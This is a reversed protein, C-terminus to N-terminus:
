RGLSYGNLSCLEMAKINKILRPQVCKFSIMIKYVKCSFLQPYEKGIHLVNKLETKFLSYDKIRPM